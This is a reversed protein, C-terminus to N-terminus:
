VKNQEYREKLKDKYQKYIEPSVDAYGVISVTPVHEHTDGEGLCYVHYCDDFSDVVMDRAKVEEVSIPPMCVIGTYVNNPGDIWKIIDGQKYDYKSAIHGKYEKTVEHVMVVSGDILKYQRTCEWDDFGDANAPVLKDIVYEDTIFMKYSDDSECLKKIVEEVKEYSSYYGVFSKFLMEDEDIDSYDYISELEIITNM